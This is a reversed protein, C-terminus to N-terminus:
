INWIISYFLQNIKCTFVNCIHDNKAGVIILDITGMLNFVNEGFESRFTQIQKLCKIIAARTIFITIFRLLKNFHFGNFYDRFYRCFTWRKVLIYCFDSYLLLFSFCNIRISQPSYFQFTTILKLRRTTIILKNLNFQIISNFVSNMKYNTIEIFNGFDCHDYWYVHVNKEEIKEM